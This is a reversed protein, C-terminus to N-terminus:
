ESRELLKAWNKFKPGTFVFGAALAKDLIREFEFDCGTDDATPLSTETLTQFLGTIQNFVQVGMVTTRCRKFSHRRYIMAIQEGDSMFITKEM